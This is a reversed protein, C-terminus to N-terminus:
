HQFLWQIDINKSQTYSDLNQALTIAGQNDYYTIVTHIKKALLNNLQALLFKLWITEKTAQTQRIYETECSSSSLNSQHEASM